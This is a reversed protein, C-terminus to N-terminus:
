TQMTPNISDVLESDAEEIELKWMGYAEALVALSVSRLDPYGKEETWSLFCEAEIDDEFVPGFAWGSVSDFLASKDEQSTIRIGMVGNDGAKDGSANRM